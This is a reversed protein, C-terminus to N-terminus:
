FYNKRPIVKLLSSLAEAWMDRAADNRNDTMAMNEYVFLVM